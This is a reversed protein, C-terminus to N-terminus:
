PCTGPVPYGTTKDHEWTETLGLSAKNAQLCYSSPTIKTITVTDQPSGAYDVISKIPNSSSTWLVAGGALASGQTYDGNSAVSASEIASAANRLDERLQTRYADQRHHIFTPIAIGALISVIMMVVHLEVLTFGSEHGRDSM